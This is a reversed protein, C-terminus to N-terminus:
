KKSTKSENEILNLKNVFGFPKMRIWAKGVIENTVVNGINAFRSDESNNRNDGLVFYEKDDLTVKEEALGGNDITAVAVKERLQKGNIYVFGDKIQITEGPLGIIRKINYYSHENGKQQMVIVDFRKPKTVKYAFKNILIKDQNQLTPKMSDGVVTTKEVGFTVVVYALIVVLVIEICWIIIERILKNRQPKKEDLSFNYNM